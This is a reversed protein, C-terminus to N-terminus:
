LSGEVFFSKSTSPIDLLTKGQAKRLAMSSI